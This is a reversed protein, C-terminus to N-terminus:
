RAQALGAESPTSRLPSPVAASCIVGTLTETQCPAPVSSARRSRRRIGMLSDWLRGVNAPRLAFTPSWTPASVSPKVCSRPNTWRSMLGDFISRARSGPAYRLAEAVQCVVNCALPIALPGYGQVLRKFNTGEVFEMVLFYVGRAEDADYLAVINPHDLQAAALAERQFLHRHLEKDTSVMPRLVKIAVLRHMKTHIAKYVIGAGGQGVQDLIRYPGLLFGNCNGALLQRSQFSTLIGDSVLSDAVKWVDEEDLRRAADKIQNESLLQSRELHHLFRQADMSSVRDQLLFEGPAHSVATM